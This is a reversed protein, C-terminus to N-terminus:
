TNEEEKATEWAPTNLRAPAGGHHVATNMARWSDHTTEHLLKFVVVLESASAHLFKESIMKAVDAYLHAAYQHQYLVLAPSLRNPDILTKNLKELANCANTLRICDKEWTDVQKLMEANRVRDTATQAVPDNLRDILARLAELYEKHTYRSALGVDHCLRAIDEFREEKLVQLEDSRLRLDLVAQYAPSWGYEGRLAPNKTAGEAATLCGGLQVLLQELEKKYQEARATAITIERKHYCESHSFRPGSSDDGTGIRTEYANIPQECITCLSLIEADALLKKIKELIVADNPVEDQASNFVLAHLRALEPGSLLLQKMMEEEKIPGTVDQAGCPCGQFAGVRGCANCKWRSMRRV